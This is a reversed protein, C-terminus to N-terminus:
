QDIGTIRGVEWFATADSIFHLTATARTSGTLSGTVKFMSGFTITRNADTDNDIKLYLEQGAEGPSTATVVANGVDIHTRLKCFSGLTPDLVTVSSYGTSNVGRVLYAGSFKKGQIQADSIIQKATRLINPQKLEFDPKPRESAQREKETPMNLQKHEKIM